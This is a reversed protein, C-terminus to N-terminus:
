RTLNRTLNRTLARAELTAHRAPPGRSGRRLTATGDRTLGTESRRGTPPRRGPGSRAASSPPAAAAAHM